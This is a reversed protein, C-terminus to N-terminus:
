SRRWRSRRRPTDAAVISRRCDFRRWRVSTSKSMLANPDAHTRTQDVELGPFGKSHCDLSPDGVRPGAQGPPVVVHAGHHGASAISPAGVVMAVAVAGAVVLHSISRKM